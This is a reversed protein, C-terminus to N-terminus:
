VHAFTNEAAEAEARRRKQLDVRPDEGKKIRDLLAHAESRAEALTMSSFQGLTFRAKEGRVRRIFFFTKARATVRIGLGNGKKDFIEDRPTAPQYKKLFQDTFRVSHRKRDKLAPQDNSM